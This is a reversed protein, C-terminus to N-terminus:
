KLSKKTSIEIAKYCDEKNTFESLFLNNHLFKFSELEKVEESLDIINKFSDPAESVTQVRWGTKDMSPYIAFNIKDNPNNKNYEHVSETYPVYTEFEIYNDVKNNIAAEALDIAAKKSDNNRKKNKAVQIFPKLNDFVDDAFMIAEIFLEDIEREDNWTPNFDSIISSLIDIAELGNDMMAISKLAVSQYADINNLTFDFFMQSLESLEFDKQHHDLWRNNVKNGVDVVYGGNDHIYNLTDINRTRCVVINKFKRLLLMIAVVEHAHFKGNHTGVVVTNQKMEKNNVMFNLIHGEDLVKIKLEKKM